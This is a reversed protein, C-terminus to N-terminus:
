EKLQTMIADIYPFGTRAEKWAALKEPNSAFIIYNKLNKCFRCLSTFVDFIGRKIM